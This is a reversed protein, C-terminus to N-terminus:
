DDPVNQRLRSVKQTAEFFKLGEGPSKIGRKAHGGLSQQQKTFGPGKFTNVLDVYQVSDTQYGYEKQLLIERESAIRIDNHTELIEYESYGQQSVRKKLQKTCGIKVGPIHYIYYSM